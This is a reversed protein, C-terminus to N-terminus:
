SKNQVQANSTVPSVPPLHQSQEQQQINNTSAATYWSSMPPPIAGSHTTGQIGAVQIERQRREEQEPTMMKVPASSRGMLKPSPELRYVPPLVSASGVSSATVPRPSDNKTPSLGSLAMNNQAGSPPPPTQSTFSNSFSPTRQDPHSSFSAVNRDQPRGMLRHQGYPTTPVSGNSANMRPFGVLPGVDHNGQTPSMSPRNQIPSLRAHSQVSHSSSPRQPSFSHGSVIGQLAVSSNQAPQQRLHHTIESVSSIPSSAPGVKTKSPSGFTAAFHQGNATAQPRREPSSPLNGTVQPQNPPFSPPQQLRGTPNSILQSM